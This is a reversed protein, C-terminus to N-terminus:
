STGQSADDATSGTDAEPESIAEADPGPPLKEPEPSLFTEVPSAEAALAEIRQELSTGPRHRLKLDYYLILLGTLYVPTWLINIISVLTSMGFSVMLLTNSPEFANAILFFQMLGLPVLYFVLALLGLLLAYGAIRWFFGRSTRWATQIAEIPGCDEVVLAVPTLILRVYLYFYLIFGVLLMIAGLCPILLVIILGIMSLVIALAFLLIIALYRLFFRLGARWSEIVGPSEDHLLRDAMWIVATMTILVVIGSLLGVVGQAGLFWFPPEPTYGGETATTMMEGLFQFQMLQLGNSILSMPFMLGGATLVLKWFHKRFMRFTADLLEGISLPRSLPNATM